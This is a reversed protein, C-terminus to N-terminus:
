HYLKSVESLSDMTWLGRQIAMLVNIDDLKNIKHVEKLGNQGFKTKL